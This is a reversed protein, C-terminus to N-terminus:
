HGTPSACTRPWMAAASWRAAAAPSTWRVRCPLSNASRTTSTVVSVGPATPESRRKGVCSRWIAPRCVNPYTAPRSRLSGRSSTPRAPAEMTYGEPLRSLIEPISEVRALVRELAMAKRRLPVRHATPTRGFNRPAVLIVSWRVLDPDLGSASLAQRLALVYVASQGAAAAVKKPDAQGDIVPFSKIEVLELQGDVEVALADPELYATVGSATFTLMPHDLLDPADAHNQTMAVLSEVTATVRSQLWTPTGVKGAARALKRVVPQAPLVVYPALADALGRHQSREKLNREFAVGSGIAFPSQGRNSEFGAREAIEHVPVAAADLVRRRTCGPNDALAAVSRANARAAPIGGRIQSLTVGGPRTPRADMASINTM